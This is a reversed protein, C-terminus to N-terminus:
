SLSNPTPNTMFTIELNQQLLFLFYIKDAQKDATVVDSTDGTNAEDDDDDDASAPPIRAVWITLVTGQLRSIPWTDRTM